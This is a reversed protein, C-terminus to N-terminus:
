CVKKLFTYKYLGLMISRSKFYRLFRRIISKQGKMDDYISYQWLRTKTRNRIEILVQISLLNIPDSVMGCIPYWNINSCIAWLISMKFYEDFCFNDIQVLTISIINSKIPVIEGTIWRGCLWWLLKSYNNHFNDKEDFCFYTVVM